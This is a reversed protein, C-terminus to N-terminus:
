VNGLKPSADFIAEDLELPCRRPVMPSSGFSVFRRKLGRAGATRGL